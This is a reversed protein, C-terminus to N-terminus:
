TTRELYPAQGICSGIIHDMGIYINSLKRKIVGNRVFEEACSGM